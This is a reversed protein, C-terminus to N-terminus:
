KGTARWQQRKSKLCKGNHGPGGEVRCVKAQKGNPERSPKSTQLRASIGTNEEAKAVKISWKAKIWSGAIKRVQKDKGADLIESKTM